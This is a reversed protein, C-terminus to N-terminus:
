KKQNGMKETKKRKTKKKKSNKEEEEEKKKKGKRKRKNVRQGPPLSKLSPDDPKELSLVVRKILEKKTGRCKYSKEKLYETLEEVSYDQFIQDYTVGKEIKVQDKKVKEDKEKKRKGKKPTSKSASKKGSGKKTGTSSKKKGERKKRKTKEPYEIELLHPYCLGLIGNIIEERTKKTKTLDLDSCLLGLFDVKCNKLLKNMGRIMIEDDIAEITKKKESKKEIEFGLCSCIENLTNQSFNKLYEEFKLIQYKQKCEALM